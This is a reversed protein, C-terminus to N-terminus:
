TLNISNLFELPYNQSEEENDCIARDCSLFERQSGPLRELIKDNMKLSSDNKPTLIVSMKRDTTFDPFLEEILDSALCEDPIDIMDSIVSSSQLIGNGLKLLWKSFEREEELARMNKTLKHIKFLHWFYSRKLM